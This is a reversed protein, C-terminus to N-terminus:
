KSALSNRSRSSRRVCPRSCIGNSWNLEGEAKAQTVIDDWSMSELEAAQASALGLGLAAASAAALVKSLM